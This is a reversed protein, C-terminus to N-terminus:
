LDTKYNYFSIYWIHSAQSGDTTVQSHPINEGGQHFVGWCNIYFFVNCLQLAVCITMATAATLRQNFVCVSMGFSKIKLYVAATCKLGNLKSNDRHRQTCKNQNDPFPWFLRHPTWEPRLASIGLFAEEKEEEGEAEPPKKELCLVPETQLLWCNNPLFFFILECQLWLATNGRTNHGQITKLTFALFFRVWLSHETAILTTM